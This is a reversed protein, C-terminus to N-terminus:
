VVTLTGIRSRRKSRVNTYCINEYIDKTIDNISNNENLVIIDAVEAYFPIRESLMAKLIVKKNEKLLPRSSDNKLRAITTNISSYIWLCIGSKNILKRNKASLVVGGGTAIVIRKQNLFGCLMKTEMERFYLEGNESFISTISKNEAIEIQEDLDIFSYNIKQALTNGIETKGCGSHGVIIFIESKNKEQLSLDVSSINKPEIGTMLKFSPKAQHKLWMKGSIYKCGASKAMKLYVPNHYQADLICHGKNLWESKLVDVNGPLTNIIIQHANLTKELNNLNTYNCNFLEALAIAKSLTRNAITVCAKNKILASVAAHAAGGSGIILCKKGEIKIGAGILSNEVGDIDTNYLSIKSNDVCVTNFADINKQKYKINKLKSVEYKLPSTINLGKISLEDIAFQLDEINKCLLRTYAFNEFDYASKFLLPSKSHLIPNGAVVFLKFSQVFEKLASRIEMEKPQGALIQEISNPAAYVFPAGLELAKARSYTALEGIGIAILSNFCKYLSLLNLTNDETKLKCAIKAIDAGSAFLKKTIDKLENFSPCQELNHYSRIIKCNYKKARKILSEAFDSPEEIDLDIYAAGSEIAKHLLKITKSQATVSTRCTAILNKHKSFIKEVNDESLKSLDIRIEAIECNEITELILAPNEHAVSICIM